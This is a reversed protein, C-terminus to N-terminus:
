RKLAWFKLLLFTIGPVTFIIIVLALWYPSAFVSTVWACYRATMSFLGGLNEPSSKGTSCTLQCLAVAYQLASLRLSPSLGAYAMLLATPLGPSAFKEQLTDHYNKNNNQM